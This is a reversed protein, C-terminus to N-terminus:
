LNDSGTNGKKPSLRFGKSHFIIGKNHCPLLITERQCLKGNGATYITVRSLSTMGCLASYLVLLLLQLGVHPLFFCHAIHKLKKQTSSKMVRLHMGPANECCHFDIHSKSLTTVMKVILINSNCQM